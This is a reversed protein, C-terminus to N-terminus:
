YIYYIYRMRSFNKVLKFSKKFFIQNFNPFILFKQYRQMTLCFSVSREFLYENQCLISFRTYHECDLRDKM